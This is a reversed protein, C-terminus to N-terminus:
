LLGRVINWFEPAINKYSFKELFEKKPLLQRRNIHNIEMEKLQIAMDDPQTADCFNLGLNFRENMYRMQPYKSSLSPINHCAAEIVAYTGNDILTPHWLFKASQLINIYDQIPLNGCIKINQKVTPYKEILRIVEKFYLSLSINCKNNIFYHTNQGTMIVALNGDYKEYYLNLAEIANLHNKHQTANTPWLFYNSEMKTSHSSSEYPDFEMPALIVRESALGAYQIADERTTPTTTLVFNAQRTTAIFHIDTFSDNFIQPVYRQIYDYIVIGYPKIPALPKKVRDSVVLWFDCDDFHSKGFCPISYESHKLTVPPMGNIKLINEVANKSIIKWRTERVTIGLELLDGFDKTINYENEVCSFIVNIAEDRSRSGLHLMKAINKAGNLSGGRYCAPLFVGITQIRKEQTKVATIKGIAHCKSLM